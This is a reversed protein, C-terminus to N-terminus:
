PVFGFSENNFPHLKQVDLHVDFQDLLDIM